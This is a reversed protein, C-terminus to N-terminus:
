EFVGLLLEAALFPAQTGIELIERQADAVAGVLHARLDQGSLAHAHRTPDEPVGLIPISPRGDWFLLVIFVRLVSKVASNRDVFRWAAGACGFRASSIGFTGAVSSMGRGPSLVCVVM